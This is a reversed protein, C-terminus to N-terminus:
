LSDSKDICIELKDIYFIKLKVFYDHLGLNKLTLFFYIYIYIPEISPNM